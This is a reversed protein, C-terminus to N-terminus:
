SSVWAKNFPKIEPKSSTIRARKRGFRTRRGQTAFGSTAPKTENTTNQNQGASTDATTQFATSLRPLTSQQLTKFVASPVIFRRSLHGGLQSDRVFPSFSNLAGRPRPPTPAPKVARHKTAGPWGRGRWPGAGRQKPREPRGAGAPRLALAVLRERGETETRQRHQRRTPATTWGCTARTEAIAEAGRGGAPLDTRKASANM